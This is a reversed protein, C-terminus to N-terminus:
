SSRDQSTLRAATSLPDAARRFHTPLRRYDPRRYWGTRPRWRLYLRRLQPARESIVRRISATALRDAPPQWDEQWRAVYDSQQPAPDFPPVSGVRRARVYLYAVSRTRYQARGGVAGPDAVEYWMRPWVGHERLLMQEIRFGYQPALARYFLEPSFQYFGHGSENNTPTVFLLHGDPRVMRMCNRIATPFDFIHELTGGDLVMTFRNALEDPLPQNLDYVYTAGEYTSVDISVVERAGLDQLIPDAWGRFTGSSWRPSLRLPGYLDLLERRSLATEQHGLTASHEFSVGSARAGVLFSWADRDLGM